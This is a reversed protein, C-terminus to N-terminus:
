RVEERSAIEGCAPVLSFTGFPTSFGERSAIADVMSNAYWCGMVLCKFFKLFRICFSVDIMHSHFHKSMVGILISRQDTSTRVWPGGSDGKFYFQFYM